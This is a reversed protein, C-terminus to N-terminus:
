KPKKNWHTPTVVDSSVVHADRFSSLEVGFEKLYEYIDRMSTGIM